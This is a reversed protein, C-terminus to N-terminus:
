NRGDAAQLAALLRDEETRCSVLQDQHRRILSVTLPSCGAQSAWDAGIEPHQGHAALPRTWGTPLGPHSVVKPPLGGGPSGGSREISTRGRIAGSRAPSNHWAPDRGEERSLRALLRPAFRDLLVIIARWWLTIGGAAKGVDHLLAAGLLDPHTHGAEHLAAYVALAHRQDHVTQRRFVSRAKLGLIRTASEIEDKAVRATLAQLFQEVRYRAPGVM